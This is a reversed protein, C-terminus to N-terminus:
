ASQGKPKKRFSPAQGRSSKRKGEGRIRRKLRARTADLSLLKEILDLPRYFYGVSGEYGIRADRKAIGLLQKVVNKEDDVLRLMRPGVDNWEKRGSLVQNRLMIFEIHNAASEFHLGCAVSVGYDRENEERKDPPALAMAGKLFEIGEQWHRAAARFSKAAVKPGFPACSAALDDSSLLVMSRRWPEPNLALPVAPGANLPSQYLVNVSEPLYSLGRSFAKWARLALSAGKKGYHKEALARLPDAKRELAILEMNRDPYAGFIWCGQFGRIKHKRLERLLRVVNPLAPLYPLANMEVSTVVQARAIVDRGERRAERMVMRTLSSPRVFALSYEDVVAKKGFREFPTGRAWDVMVPMREPLARIAQAIQKRTLIYHWSWLWQIVQAPSHAQRLGEYILRAADTLVAVPGRERCRPCFNRTPRGAADGFGHSYCNTIFESATILIAGALEPVRGFVFATSERLFEQVQPTSTCMGWVNRTPIRSRMGRAEPHQEFFEPPMGKPENLYLYIGIGYKRCRVAMKRLNKLRTECGKGFEPFVRSPALDRLQVPLWVGNVGREALRALIGDPYFDEGTLLVDGYTGIYSYFICPKWLKQASFQKARRQGGPVKSMERVFAFPQEWRFLDEFYPRIKKAFRRAASRERETPPRWRIPKVAPQGGLKVDLYDMELLVQRFDEPSLCLLNAIDERPILYWNRRIIVPLAREFPPLPLQPLGLDRAIAEIDNKRCNLFRALTEKPLLDFNRYVFRYVENPFIDM